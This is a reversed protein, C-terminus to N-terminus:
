LDKILESFNIWPFHFFFRECKFIRIFSKYMMLYSVFEDISQIHRVLMHGKKRFSSSLLGSRNGYMIFGYARLELLNCEIIHLNLKVKSNPMPRLM